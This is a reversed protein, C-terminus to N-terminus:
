FLGIFALFGQQLAYDLLCIVAACAILVVLVVLTNKMTQDWSLWVVKKCESKYVRLFKKINERFKVGLIVAAIVVVAAICIGVIQGVSLGSKKDDKNGSAEGTTEEETSGETEGETSGETNGETDGETDGETVGETNGETDGETVSETSQEGSTAEEACVPMAFLSIMLVVAVLALAWRKLLTGTKM